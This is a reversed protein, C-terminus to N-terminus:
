RAPDPAPQLSTEEIWGIGDAEASVLWWWQGPNAEYVPQGIVRVIAGSSLRVMGNDFSQFSPEGRLWAGTEPLVVLRLASNWPQPPPTLTLSVTPTPTPMIQTPTPTPVPQPLSQQSNFLMIAFTTAFLGAALILFRGTVKV